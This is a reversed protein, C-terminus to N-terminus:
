GDISRGGVREGGQFADKSSFPIAVKHVGSLVGDGKGELSIEKGEKRVRASDIM